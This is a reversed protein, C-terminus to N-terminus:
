LIRPRGLTHSNPVETGGTAPSLVRLLGFRLLADARRVVKPDGPPFPGARHVFGQLRAVGRTEKEEESSFSSLPKRLPLLAVAQLCARCRTPPFARFLSGWPHEPM